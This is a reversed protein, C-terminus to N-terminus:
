PRIGVNELRRLLASKADETLYPPEKGADRVLQDLQLTSKPGIVVSSVLDESLAYRLAACRMSTITGAVSPRLAALQSIRKKLEDNTWRDRRHDGSAFSKTTPWQGCLLGHALVSRALIGVGKEKALEAVGQLDQQHFASYALSLVQAGAEIAAKGTAADGVSAGWCRAKGDKVFKDLLERLPQKGLAISSPNHLLLVDIPRQLRESSQEVAKTLHEDDFRKAPPTVSRDTGLKTIVIADAHKELLRGLRSEMAGNAYADSTEFAKLDLALAREIVSDQDPEEVPGYGDGCLGWTGLCLEPIELGTKGLSRRRM